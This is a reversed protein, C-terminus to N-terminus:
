LRSTATRELTSPNATVNEIVQALLEGAVDPRFEREVRHKAALGMRRARDPERLLKDLYESLQDVDGPRALLGTRDHNVIELPGGEAYALCPLGAAAAELIALGFPEFRSPHIFVDLAALLRPVDPRWGTFTIRRASQLRVATAQLDARIRGDGV